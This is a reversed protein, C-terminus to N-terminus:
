GSAHGPDDTAKVAGLSLRRAAPRRGQPARELSQLLMLFIGIGTLLKIPWLSSRFAARAASATARLRIPPPASRHRRLAPRLPLLDPLLVTFADVWAKTRRASWDGYFLDMRVNAIRAAGFVARRPHLLRGDRIAGNGADLSVPRFLTKASRLVLAPHGDHRLDPVHRHARPPLQGCRGRARVRAAGEVRSLASRRLAVPCRPAPVCRRGRRRTAPRGSLDIGASAGDTCYRVGREVADLARASLRGAKRM